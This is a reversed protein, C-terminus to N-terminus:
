LIGTLATKVADQKHIEVLSAFKPSNELIMQVLTHLRARTLQQEADLSELDDKPLM